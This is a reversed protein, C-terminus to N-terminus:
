ELMEFVADHDVLQVPQDQQMVFRTRLTDHRSVILKLSNLLASVDLQGQLSLVLPINYFSNGPELQDLLWLREQAFSLLAADSSQRPKIQQATSQSQREKKMLYALIELEEASVNSTDM